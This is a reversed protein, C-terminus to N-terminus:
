RGKWNPARKELFATIGERADESAFLGAFERQEAALGDAIPRDLGGAVARKTAAVALPARKEFVEALETAAALLEAGDVVKSVLGWELATAADIPDGSLLMTMARARGIFRPLRQTGGWGPIIGLKIEPQGFRASSAAIRADCALALELGGGLAMGNIAAVIVIPLSEMELTLQQGGTATNGGGASPFETVDAGASFFREGDGTIVAVRVAPDAVAAAFAARLGAIVASSIANAPPHDITVIVRAGQRETRVVESM